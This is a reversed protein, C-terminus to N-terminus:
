AAGGFQRLYRLYEPSLTKTPEPGALLSQSDQVTPVPGTAVALTVDVSNGTLTLHYLGERYIMITRNDKQSSYIGGYGDEAVIERTQNNRVTLTFYPLSISQPSESNLKKGRCSDPDKICDYLPKITFSIWLPGKLVTANVVLGTSNGRLIYTRKAEGYRMYHSTLPTENIQMAHQVPYPNPTMEPLADTLLGPSAPAVSAPTQRTTTPASSYGPRNMFPPYGPTPSVSITPSVPGSSVNTSGTAIGAGSQQQIIKLCGSTGAALIVLVILFMTIQWPNNGHVPGSRRHYDRIM